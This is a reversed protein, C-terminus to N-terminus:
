TSLDSKCRDQTQSKWFSLCTASRTPCINHPLVWNEMLNEPQKQLGIIECRRGGLEYDLLDLLAAKEPCMDRILILSTDSLKAGWMLLLRVEKDSKMKVLASELPSQGHLSLQEINAGLQLLKTMLQLRNNNIAAMHLLNRDDLERYKANIRRAPVPPEGLWKLVVDEKGDEVAKYIEYTLDEVDDLDSLDDEM